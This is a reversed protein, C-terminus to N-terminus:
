AIARNSTVAEIQDNPMIEISTSVFAGFESGAPVTPVKEKLRQLERVKGKGIPASRRLINFEDGAALEGELVKGGIVQRDKETTFIRLARATAKVTVVTVKPTRTKVLEAVWEGLKYIVDFTQVTIGGRLIISKAPPDVSVNFGVIAPEGSGQASKLDSESISGIGRSVIKIVVKETAQKQIEAEIAELSGGTDAKIVLPLLAKEVLLTTATNNPRKKKKGEEALIFEEAEQKNKVVHCQAGVRPVSSWGIIVVPMGPEGKELSVGQFNELRRTKTFADEAVLFDGKELIGEKILLTAFIGRKKDINSEIVYARTKAGLTAHVDHLEAVLLILDLLDDVGEGTKSSIAAFPIDGGYGEVYIEHEALSQKTREINSQPKDIKTIAVIYPIGAKKISNLAEVTQPKVGEEASVILIGIDAVSAGRSRIGKFAEHGPTDLFTIKHTKGDKTTHVVEYAGLHQTIGGAEKEVVNTKRIYDLLTSKGHDIHGMVAVVPPRPTTTGKKTTPINTTM